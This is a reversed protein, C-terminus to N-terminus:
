VLKISYCIEQDKEGEKTMGTSQTARFQMLHGTSIASFPFHTIIYANGNQEESREGSDDNGELKVFPPCATDSLFLWLM